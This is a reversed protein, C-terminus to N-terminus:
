HRGHGHYMILVLDGNGCSEGNVSKLQIGEKRSHEKETRSDVKPNKMAHATMDRGDAETQVTQRSKRTKRPRSM